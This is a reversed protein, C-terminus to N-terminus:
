FPIYITRFFSMKRDIGNKKCYENNIPTLKKWDLIPDPIHASPIKLSM